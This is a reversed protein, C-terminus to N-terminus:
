HVRKFIVVRDEGVVSAFLHEDPEERNEFPTDPANITIKRYNAPNLHKLLYQRVAFDKECITYKRFIVWTANRAPSMDEGSLGGVVRMATYFKLPMDGYTIAITDSPSGHANLYSVIGEVPGVFPHTLEHLFPPLPWQLAIVLFGLVAAIWHIDVLLGICYAIGIVIVPALPALYRFFPAPSAVSLVIVTLGVSLALLALGSTNSGFAPFSGRKIRFFIGYLIPFSIVVPLFFHHICLRCYSFFYAVIRHLNATQAGYRDTYRMGTLWIMWPLSIIMAIALMFAVAKLRGRDFLSAHIIIAAALTFFYLYQTQFLMTLSVVLFPGAGKKKKLMLDYTYLAALFFFAAMSYYRCQRSLILFPVCLSLLAAAWLGCNRKPFFSSTFFFVLVVTAVACVAFPFRASLTSVGLLKFSAATAYFPLWTHWKWIFNKGYEAGLEQSFYNKGDYGRPLGGHLITRSICATQAEDQWFDQNGLNALSFFSAILLVIILFAFKLYNNASIM